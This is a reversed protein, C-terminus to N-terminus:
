IPVEASGTRSWAFHRLSFPSTSKPGFYRTGSACQSSKQGASLTSMPIMDASSIASRKEFLDFSEDTNWKGRGSFLYRAFRYIQSDNKEELIIAYGREM